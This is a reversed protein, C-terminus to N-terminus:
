GNKKGYTIQDFEQIAMEPNKLAVAIDPHGAPRSSHIIWQGDKKILLKIERSHDQEVCGSKVQQVKVPNSKLYFLIKYVSFGLLGLTALQLFLISFLLM